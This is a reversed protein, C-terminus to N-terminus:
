KPESQSVSFTYIKGSQAATSIAGPPLVGYEGPKLDTIAARYTNPGIKEFKAAIAIKDVGVSVGSIGYRGAEFERQEKKAELMLLQYEAPEVGNLCRIVLSTSPTSAVGSTTGRVVGRYKNRFTMASLMGSTKFSAVEVRLPIFANGKQIFVGLEDPTPKPTSAVSATSTSTQRASLIADIVVDSLGIEKLTILSQASTDIDTGNAEIAKVLLKEDFGSKKMQALDNASLPKREQPLAPLWLLITSIFVAIKM